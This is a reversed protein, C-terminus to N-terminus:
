RFGLEKLGAVMNQIRPRNSDIFAQATPEDSM